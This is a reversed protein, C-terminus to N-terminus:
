HFHRGGTYAAKFRDRTTEAKPRFGEAPGVATVAAEIGKQISAPDDPGIRM